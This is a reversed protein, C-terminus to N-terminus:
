TQTNQNSGDLDGDGAPEASPNDPQQDDFLRLTKASAMQKLMAVPLPDAQNYDDIYIDLGDMVNFHPDSFLKKMAANKVEPTVGRAVFSTFDSEPTLQEVQALTPLPQERSAVAAPDTGRSPATVFTAPQPTAARLNVATEPETLARGQRADVKRRSWRSLFGDESAM